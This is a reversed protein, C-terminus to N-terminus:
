KEFVGMRNKNNFSLLTNKMDRYKEWDKKIESIPINNGIVNRLYKQVRLYQANEERFKKAWQRKYEANKKNNRKYCQKYKESQLENFRCIQRRVNKPIAKRRYGLLRREIIEDTTKVVGYRTFVEKQYRVIGKCFSSCFKKTRNSSKDIFPKGCLECKGKRQYSKNNGM